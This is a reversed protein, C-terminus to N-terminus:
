KKGNLQGINIICSDQPILPKLKSLGKIGWIMTTLPLMQFQFASNFDFMKWNPPVVGKSSKVIIELIAFIQFM